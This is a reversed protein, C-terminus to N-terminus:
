RRHRDKQKVFSITMMVAASAIFLMVFKLINDLTKPSVPIFPIIPADEDLPLLDVDSAYNTYKDTYIVNIKAVSETADDKIISYDINEFNENALSLEALPVPADWITGFDPDTAITQSMKEFNIDKDSRAFANGSFESWNDSELIIGDRRLGYLILGSKDFDDETAKVHTKNAALYLVEDLPYFKGEFNSRSDSAAYKETPSTSYAYIDTGEPITPGFKEEPNEDGEAGMGGDVPATYGPLNEDFVTTNGWIFIRALKNDNAFAANDIKKIRYDVTAEELATENAFTAEPITGNSFTEPVDVTTVKPMNAFAHTDSGDFHAAYLDFESGAKGISNFATGSFANSGITVTEDRLAPAFEFIHLKEAGMFAETEISRLAADKGADVKELKSCKAFANATIKPLNTITIESMTMNYFEEHGKGGGMYYAPLDASEITIKDIDANWFLQHIMQGSTESPGFKTPKIAVTDYHVDRDGANFASPQITKVSGPIVLNDTVDAGYFAATIISEVGEPIANELTLDSWQFAFANITKVTSPLSFPKDVRANEFAGVSVNALSNPLKITGIKSGEFAFASNTINKWGTESLDVEEFTMASFIGTTGNLETKANETFKLIGFHEDAETQGYIPNGNGDDKTAVVKHNFITYFTEFDKGGYFNPNWVAYNDMISPHIAKQMLIESNGSWKKFSDPFSDPVFTTPGNKVVAGFDCDITINRLSAANAFTGETLFTIGKPILVDRINTDMFARPGIYKLNPANLDATLGYDGWFAETGIFELSSPLKTVKPTPYQIKGGYKLSASEFARDGIIRISDPLVVEKDTIFQNFAHTSIVETNEPLLVEGIKSNSFMYPYVVKWGTKSMDVKDALVHGFFTDTLTSSGNKMAPMETVVKETFTITGYKQFRGSYNVPYYDYAIGMRDLVEQSASYYWGYYEGFQRKFYNQFSNYSDVAIEEHLWPALIDPNYMDFDFTIDNLYVCDTFIHSGMYKLKDRLAVNRVSTSEFAYDGLAVLEPFDVDLGLTYAQRFAAIGIFEINKPVNFKMHASRIGGEFALNGIGKVSEAINIESITRISYDTGNCTEKTIDACELRNSYGLRSGYDHIMHSIFASSGIYEYGDGVTIKDVYNFNQFYIPAIVNKKSDIDAYAKEFEFGGKYGYQKYWTTYSAWGYGNGTRDIERDTKHSQDYPDYHWEYDEYTIHTSSTAESEAYPAITVIEKITNYPANADREGRWYGALVVYMPLTTGSTLTDYAVTLKTMNKNGYFLNSQLYNISKPLYLEKIDNNEFASYDIREIGEFNVDTLKAGKYARAGIHKINTNSFDLTTLNTNQFTGPLIYSVSSDFTVHEIHQCGDFMDHGYKETKITINKVNTGAFIGRGLMSNGEVVISTNAENFISDKFSETGIYNFNESKFNSLKLKYGSFARGIYKTEFSSQAYTAYCGGEVPATASNYTYGGMAVCNFDSWQPTYADLEEPTMNYYNPITEEPNPLYIEKGYDLYTCTYSTNGNKNWSTCNSITTTKTIMDGIVMNKGFVLETEVEPNIIPKVGHIQIKSTNSMDLKTTDETATRREYSPFDINQKEINANKLIYTDASSIGSILTKLKELSPVTITKLASPKDYFAITLIPNDSGANIATYEWRVDDDGTIIGKTTDAFASNGNIIASVFIAAFFAVIHLVSKKTKNKPM